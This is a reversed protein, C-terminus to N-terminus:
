IRCATWSTFLLISGRSCNRSRPSARRVARFAWTLPPALGVHPRTDRHAGHRAPFRVRRARDVYRLVPDGEARCLRDPAPEFIADPPVGVEVSEVGNYLPLYLLYERKERKLGEVLTSENLGPHEPQGAGVWHREGDRVYLDLGSVGTAPMHPMAIQHERPLTWRARLVEADTVFRYRLGASHHSLGWVAAPVVGEAKAPLRDYLRQTATWAKGELPLTSLNRMDNRRCSGTRRCANRSADSGACAGAASSEHAPSRLFPLTMSRWIPRDDGCRLPRIVIGQLAVGERGRGQEPTSPSRGISLPPSRKSVFGHALQRAGEADRRGQRWGVHGQGSDRPVGNPLHIWLTYPDKAVTESTGRLTRKTEDWVVSQLSYSGSIHRSMGVLQPRDLLPHMFLVRTDHPQISINLTNRAIGLEAQRWFDFAIYDRNADLGLKQKLDIAERM